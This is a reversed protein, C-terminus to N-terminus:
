LDGRVNDSDFVLTRTEKMILAQEAEGPTMYMFQLKVTIRSRCGGGAHLITPLEMCLCSVQEENLFVMVVTMFLHLQVEWYAEKMGSVPWEEPSTLMVFEVLAVEEQRSWEDIKEKSNPFLMKKVSIASQRKTPRLPTKGSPTSRMRKAM